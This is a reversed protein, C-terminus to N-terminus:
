QYNDDKNTWYNLAEDEQTKWVHDKLTKVLKQLFKSFKENGQSYRLIILNSYNEWYNETKKKSILKRFLEVKLTTIQHSKLGYKNKASRELTDQM